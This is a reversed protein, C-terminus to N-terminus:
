TSCIMKQLTRKNRRQIMIIMKIRLIRMMKQLSQKMTMKMLNGVVPCDCCSVAEVTAWVWVVLGLGGGDVVHGDDEADM